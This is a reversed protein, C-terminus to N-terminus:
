APVPRRFPIGRPARELNQRGSKADLAVVSTTSVVFLADGDLRAKYALPVKAEWIM